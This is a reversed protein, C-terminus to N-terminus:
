RFVIPMFSFRNEIIIRYADVLPRSQNVLMLDERQIMIHHLRPLVDALLLPDDAGFTDLAHRTQRNISGARCPVAQEGAVECKYTAYSIASCISDTDPNKHGIVLLPKARDM